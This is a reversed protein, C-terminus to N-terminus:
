VETLVLGTTLVGFGTVGLTRAVYAVFILNISQAVVDGSLKWTANRTVRLDTAHDANDDALPSAISGDNM